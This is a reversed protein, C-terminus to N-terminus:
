YLKEKEKKRVTGVYIINEIYKEKGANPEEYQSIEFLFKAQNPNQNQVM